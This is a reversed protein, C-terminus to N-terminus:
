DGAAPTLERQPMTTAAGGETKAADFLQIPAGPM